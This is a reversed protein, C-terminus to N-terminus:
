FSKPTNVWIYESVGTSVNEIHHPIHSRFWISDGPDLFHIEDGLTIKFRGSMVMGWEEGEHVYPEDGTHAGPDYSGYIVELQDSEGPSALEFYVGGTKVSSRVDSSGGIVITQRQSARIVHGNQRTPGTFFYTIETGLAAALRKLTSISPETKNREIQSIVSASIGAKEALGRISLGLGMRLTALREGISLNEEDLLPEGVPAEVVVPEGPSEQKM